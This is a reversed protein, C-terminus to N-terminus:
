LICSIVLGDWFQRLLRGCLRCKEELEEPTNFAQLKGTEGDEAIDWRGESNECEIVHKWAGDIRTNTKFYERGDFSFEIENNVFLATIFSKKDCRETEAEELDELIARFPKGDILMNDLMEDCTEFYFRRNSQCDIIYRKNERYEKLSDFDMNLVFSKEGYKLVTKKGYFFANKMEWIKM